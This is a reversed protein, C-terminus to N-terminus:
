KDKKLNVVMKNGANDTLLVWNSRKETKNPQEVPCDNLEGKVKKLNIEVQDEQEQQLDELDRKKLVETNVNDEM